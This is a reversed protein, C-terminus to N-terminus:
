LDEIEKTLDYILRDFVEKQYARLTKM